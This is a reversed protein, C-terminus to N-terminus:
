KTRKAIKIGLDYVGNLVTDRMGHIVRFHYEGNEPFFVNSKYPITVERIDGAGKGLWEGKENTLIGQVTDTLSVGSPLSTIVFMYINRYHYDSSTRISFTLNYSGTTDNIICAYKAPDYMSWQGEEMKVTDSYLTGKGCSILLSLLMFATLAKLSPNKM